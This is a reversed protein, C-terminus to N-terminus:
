GRIYESSPEDHCVELAKAQVGEMKALRELKEVVHLALGARQLFMAAELMVARTGIPMVEFDSLAEERGDAQGTWV